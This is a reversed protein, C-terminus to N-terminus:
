LKLFPVSISVYPFALPTILGESVKFQETYTNGQPNRFVIVKVQKTTLDLIWYEKIGASAYIPLKTM